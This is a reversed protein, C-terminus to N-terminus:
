FSKGLGQLQASLGNENRMTGHRPRVTIPVLSEATCIVKTVAGYSSHGLVAADNTEMEYRRIINPWMMARPLGGHGVPSVMSGVNLLSTPTSWM